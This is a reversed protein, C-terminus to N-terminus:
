SAKQLRHSRFFRSVQVVRGMIDFTRSGDLHTNVNVLRHEHNVREEIVYTKADLSFVNGSLIKRQEKRCLILDLDGFVNPLFARTPNEADIGFQKNFVHVYHDRLFENAGDFSRIGRLRLEAVLRDQLTRFMREVRGKAPASGALILKSNLSQLARGIDTNWDRDKRGYAAAQDFYFAQPIGYEDIIERIIQLGNFTTEGECFRAALIKGTADDVALLLHSTVGGFWRHASGDYQVLMGEQPMRARPRHVKKRVRRGFKVLGHKKAWTQLTTKKVEIGEEALLTERFHALNFGNYKTKLLQVVQEEFADSKKNVPVNGTNGHLAGIFDAERIKNLRRIAQRESLGVLIAFDKVKLDGEIVKLALHYLKLQEKSMTVDKM